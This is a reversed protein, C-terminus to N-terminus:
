EDTQNSLFRLYHRAVEIDANSLTYQMLAQPEVWLVQVHEVPKPIGGKTLICRWPMLRITKDPYQYVVEPLKTVPKVRVELEEQIERKLGGTEEEGAELKGGPFEWYGGREQQASRQAILVKGEYEILACTVPIASKLKM